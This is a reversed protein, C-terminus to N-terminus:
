FLSKKLEDIVGPGQDIVKISYFYHSEQALTSERDILSQSVYVTVYSNAFSYKIANSVLNILIQQVRHKDILV